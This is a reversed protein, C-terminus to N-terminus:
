GVYRGVGLEDEKRTRNIVMQPSQLVRLGMEDETRVVEGRLSNTFVDTIKIDVFKGIMDPSGQFNVIRNNETRGTLEMIDKKSPGEVLVRQETGLMARSFQAAQNNIRQQLLYLRQKKEDETVDDPYDAAPTGPRASYIFSFSMDFNVQAILNMTQEFDEETEGPFGVIFDSSIQINPRVAKLKRIISKYEIATHGRKMMTLIRDSGSQVPLHLFSVLEPTDRYVDIIDDTFEIPHSTTFRLRDIGDIAAVLRLLEAFTCIEGDFTPGRYANVNQGLLNVERVGQEALQAIEFLIDDVPRSVEEGRTYPVVCYTCYKNCGEMISVFATPGEARPEPLRDFKEIEPFSIDVVSSKGGRIQNIMEPLRHLTQPGFVIDVYPARTRIHEGEQSAVCGGVGILLKPNSKKLEKWRGLQHFVKEQAKERISCTNLLLVDAEEPVDTLELGHTSHLLDAMKSSDYENMQCGWTKIHLKQTM